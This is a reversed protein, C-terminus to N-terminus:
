LFRSWELGSGCLPVMGADPFMLVLYRLRVLDSGCFLINGDDPRPRTPRPVTPHIPRGRALAMLSCNNNKFILFHDFWHSAIEECLASGTYRLIAYNRYIQKTVRLALNFINNKHLALLSWMLFTCSRRMMLDCHVALWGPEIQCDPFWGGIKTDALWRM